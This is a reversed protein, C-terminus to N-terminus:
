RGLLHFLFQRAAELINGQLESAQPVFEGGPPALRQFQEMQQQRQEEFQRQFEQQFQQEFEKAGESGQPFGEPSVGQFQEQQQRRQEQFQREFEQQFQQKSGEGGEFGPPPGGQGGEQGQMAQMCSQVKAQIENELGGGDGPGGGQEEGKAPSGGGQQSFGELCAFAEECPKTLCERMQNEMIQMQMEFCTRMADGIQPNPTFQGSRIKDLVEAGVKEQLCAAVELPASEIGEKMRQMGEEINALEEESILDHEKAFAFCAEQNEPTNCYMECEQEGRCGGPGKGGTKRFLQAEEPTMFGAQTFFAACEETNQDQACYTECSEKSKCNGPMKGEKMLPLVRRVQEAEEPPIFGAALAFNVCEEINSPDECYVECENKGKCDGPLKVGADLAKLVQKAEKLEEPSIFGAQEAFAICERMHSSDECYTECADKNTCGGPLQAGARLAQQVRKAEELEEPDMFGHEEAFALCEEINTIDGCYAECDEETTCQGPGVAGISQFKKAKEIEDASLLNHKEAFAICQDINVPDACYARCSQEGACNGLEAVPYVIDEESLAFAGQAIAFGLVALSAGFLIKSFSIREM